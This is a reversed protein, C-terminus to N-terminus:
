LAVDGGRLRELDLPEALEGLRLQEDDLYQSDVTRTIHAKDNIRPELCINPM